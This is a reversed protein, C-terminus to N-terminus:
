PRTTGARARISRGAKHLGGAPERRARAHASPGSWAERRLRSGADHGRTRPYVSGTPRRSWPHLRRARAHVSPGDDSALGSFRVSDHGRTRISRSRRRPRKAWGEDHGRTRPHVASGSVFPPHPRTTGARAASPGTFVGTVILTSSPRARAHASPGTADDEALARMATTGARARISRLAGLWAFEIELRARAHASPGHESPRPALQVGDHGRTRPHVSGCHNSSPRSRTTGARARIFRLLRGLWLFEGEDHRRPRAPASSGFSFLLAKPCSSTTAARARIFRAWM